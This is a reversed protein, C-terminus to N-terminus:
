CVVAFAYLVATGEQKIIRKNLTKLRQEVCVRRQWVSCYIKSCNCLFVFLLQSVSFAKYLIQKGYSIHSEQDVCNVGSIVCVCVRQTLYLSAVVLTM